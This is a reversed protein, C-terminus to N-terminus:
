DHGSSIRGDLLSLIKGINNRVAAAETTWGSDADFRLAILHGAVQVDDYM